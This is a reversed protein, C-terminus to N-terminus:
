RSEYILFSRIKIKEKGPFVNEIYLTLLMYIVSDILMMIMCYLFTFNDNPKAGQNINFWQVGKAM